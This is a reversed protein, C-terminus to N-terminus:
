GGFSRTRTSARSAERPCIAQVRSKPRAASGGAPECPPFSGTRASWSLRPTSRGTRRGRGAPSSRRAPSSTPRGRGARVAVIPTKPDVRHDTRRRQLDRYAEPGQRRRGPGLHQRQDNHERARSRVAAIARAPGGCRSRSLYPSGDSETRRRRRADRRRRRVRGPKVDTLAVGAVVLVFRTKPTLLVTREDGGRTRVALSAGDAAVSEVTARVAAPPANQAFAFTPALSLLAILALRISTM